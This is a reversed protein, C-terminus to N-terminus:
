GVPPEIYIPNGLLWLRGEPGRVNARIWHRVGDARWNFRLAPAPARAPISRREVVQGDIILEATAGGVSATGLLFTVGSGAAVALSQGMVARTNGTEAEWTMARDRSGRVDVFVRGARIGELIAPMSLADAHVVTTPAGLAAGSADTVERLADHNDSGGIATLRRGTSLLREWFPIGSWESDADAGNVVEVALVRSLDTSDPAAWGCGMCAEGSLRVPHNISVIGQGDTQALVANWDPVEASGVRFDLPAIGGIWNAHGSFTTIERGPMLLLRDFYPQLERLGNAQSMTNHDTVAIFDLGRRAAEQATLFLPCPVRQGTQSACGGDSHADHMHLDGRYWAAGTRLPADVRTDDFWVRATFRDDADARVNPFGLLLSWRGPTIPGPLYSPTADTAAVTFRRKNGGSWGRFGDQGRFGDPGLLGLDVTTRRERGSYEFEVTIRRTGAPVEFPLLRYTQHDGGGIAGELVRDPAEGGHAGFALAVGPLLTLLISRPFKM